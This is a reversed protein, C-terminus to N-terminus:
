ETEVDYMFTHSGALKEGVDMTGYKSAKPDATQPILM